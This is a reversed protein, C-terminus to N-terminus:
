TALKPIDVIRLPGGLLGGQPQPIHPTFKNGWTVLDSSISPRRYVSLTKSRKWQSNVLNATIKSVKEIGCCHWLVRSDRQVRLISKVTPASDRKQVKMVEIELNETTQSDINEVVFKWLVLADRPLAARRAVAVTGTVVRLAARLLFRPFLGRAEPSGGGRRDAEYGGRRRALRGKALGIARQCHRSSPSPSASVCYRQSRDRVQCFKLQYNVITM